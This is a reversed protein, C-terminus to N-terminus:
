ASKNKDNPLYNKKKKREVIQLCFVKSLNISQNKIGVKAINQYL